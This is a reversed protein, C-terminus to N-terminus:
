LFTIEIATTFNTVVSGMVADRHWAQFTWTEGPQVAVEGTPAPLSAPDISLSARGYSDAVQIEGPRVFRGIPGSLCLNGQSAGPMTTFSRLRGALFLTASRAPLRSALLTVDRDAVLASGMARLEGVLGLSNPNSWPHAPDAAAPNGNCYVEGLDGPLEEAYAGGAQGRRTTGLASNSPNGGLYVGTDIDFRFVTGARDRILYLRGLPDIALGEANAAPNAYPYEAIKRDVGFAGLSLDIEVLGKGTGGGLSAVYNLSNNSGYFLGSRADCALGDVDAGSGLRAVAIACNPQVGPSVTIRFIEDRASAYLWGDRACWTLGQAALPGGTAIDRVAGRFTAPTPTGGIELYAISYLDTGDLIYVLNAVDDYALGRISDTDQWLDSGTVGFEVHYGYSAPAAPAVRETGYVLIGSLQAAGAASTSLSLCVAVAIARAAAFPANPSAGLCARIM